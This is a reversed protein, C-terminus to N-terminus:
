RVQHEAYRLIIRLQYKDGRYVSRVFEVPQDQEDFTVRTFRLVPTKADLGLAKCEYDEPLRTEILQDAWVLTWGYERRLVEYLSEREFDHQKLLGPCLHHPIHTTELALPQADALRVRSLVVLESGPSILLRHAANNDAARVEAVLVRSSPQLGRQRMDESFSTLARLDQDIKPANVFTGKGVRSYTLGEQALAQLAQRATMRSVDYRQSLERESPLRAGVAYDGSEIQKQLLDKIQVYLPISSERQLSVAGIGRTHDIGGYDM